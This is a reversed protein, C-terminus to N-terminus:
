AIDRSTDIYIRDTVRFKIYETIPTMGRIKPISLKSSVKDGKLELDIDFITDCSNQILSQVRETHVGKIMFLYCSSDHDNVLDYIKDLLRKIIGFEIGLEILFSFNDFIITFSGEDNAYITNLKADIFEIVLRAAESHDSATLLINNYYEGHVDIFEIHETSHSLETMNRVIYRPSKETTIYFTKRPTCLEALFVDPVSKPDAGFYVLSGKPIGGNLSRDLIDIGTALKNGDPYKQTEPTTEPSENPSIIPTSSQEQV